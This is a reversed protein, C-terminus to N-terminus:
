TRHQSLAFPRIAVSHGVLLAQNTKPFALLVPLSLESGSVSVRELILLFVNRDPPVRHRPPLPVASCVPLDRSRNGIIGNSIKM